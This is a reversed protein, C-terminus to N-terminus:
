NAQRNRLFRTERVASLRVVSERAVANARRVYDFLALFTGNFLFRHCRVREAQSPLGYPPNNGGVYYTNDGM